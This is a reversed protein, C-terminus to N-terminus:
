FGFTAKGHNTNEKNKMRAALLFKLREMTFITYCVFFRTSYCYSWM